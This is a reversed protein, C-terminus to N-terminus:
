VVGGEPPKWQGRQVSLLLNVLTAEGSSLAGLKGSDGRNAAMYWRNALLKAEGGSLKGDQDKDLEAMMGVLDLASLGADKAAASLEGLTFAGDDDGDFRNRLDSIASEHMAGADRASLTDGAEYLEWPADPTKLSPPALAGMQAAIDRGLNQVAAFALRGLSAQGATLDRAGKSMGINESRLAQVEAQSLKGDADTDGDDVLSAADFDQLGAKDAAAAIEDVSLGGDGDTDGAAAVADFVGMAPAENFRRYDMRDNVVSLEQASLRGDKDTDLGGFDEARIEADTLMNMTGTKAGSGPGGNGRIQDAAIGAYEQASLLGDGDQDARSVLAQGIGAAGQAGILVALNDTDFLTTERLENLSLVGNRDRDGEALLAQRAAIDAPSNRGKTAKALEDLSVGGSQDADLSRMVQEEVAHRVAMGGWSFPGHDREKQRVAVWDKHLGDMAQDPRSRVPATAAASPLPTAIASAALSRILSM